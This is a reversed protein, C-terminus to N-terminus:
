ATGRQSPAGQLAGQSVSHHLADLKGVYAEISLANLYQARGAQAIQARKEPNSILDSLALALAAVDGVPVFLCTEGDRLIEEHAGVRTTVVALGHALGELVAMAMGEGHSPLVLIDSSECLTRTQAGSLWGPLTVRDSVGLRTAEAAYHDVPGDGALVASWNLSQLTPHALAELLEPVGKRPGLQGLFVIRTPSNAAPLDAPASVGQQPDPVANHLVGISRPPVGLLDIATSRDREGLVIVRDAGRFLRRIARRQWNPRRLFDAAYDFDHLHLVHTCGMGRALGGLILKRTTSGRGAIHLHHVRGPAILRDKMMLAMATWLVPPSRLKDWREGRTDTVRHAHTGQSQSALIYGILRGIGGGHETGGAVYHRVSPDPTPKPRKHNIKRV